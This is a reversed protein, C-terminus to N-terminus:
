NRKFYFNGWRALKWTAIFFNSTHNCRIWASWIRIERCDYVRRILFLFFYTRSLLPATGPLFVSSLRALCIVCVAASPSISPPVRMRILKGKRMPSRPSVLRGCIRDSLPIAPILSTVDARDALRPLGIRGRDREQM